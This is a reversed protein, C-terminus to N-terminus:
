FEAKTEIRNNESTKKKQVCGKFYTNYLSMQSINFFFKTYLSDGPTFSLCLLKYAAVRPKISVLTEANSVGRMVAGDFTIKWWLNGEM